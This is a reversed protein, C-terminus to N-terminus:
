AEDMAWLNILYKRKEKVYTNYPFLVMMQYIQDNGKGRILLAGGHDKVIQAVTVSKYGMDIHLVPMSQGNGIRWHRIETISIKHNLFPCAKVLDDMLASFMIDKFKVDFDKKLDAITLIRRHKDFNIAM